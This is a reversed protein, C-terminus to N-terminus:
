VGRFAQAFHASKSKMYRRVSSLDADTHVLDRYLGEWSRYTFNDELGPRLYARVQKTPDKYSYALSKPDEGLQSTSVLNVVHWQTGGAMESAFIVNRFLQSHFTGKIDPVVISQKTQPGAKEYYREILEGPRVPKEGPKIEKDHAIPNGSGFKAEICVTLEGESILMIDPETKFQRIDRELRHRVETLPAYASLAGTALDILQGWLYLKPERRVEKGTLVYVAQRLKGAEALGVFVNWSLADESMEYGLRHSEVKKGQALAIRVAADRQIVFNRLRGDLPSTVGNFYVFTNAHLRLGHTGCFPLHTKRYPVRDLPTTCGKVPCGQGFGPVCKKQDFNEHGFSDTCTSRPDNGNM